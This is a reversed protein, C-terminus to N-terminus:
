EGNGPGGRLLVHCRSHSDTGSLFHLRHQHLPLGPSSLSPRLWLALTPQAEAKRPGLPPPRSPPPRVAPSHPSWTVSWRGRAGQCEVSPEVLQRERARWVLPWAGSAGWRPRPACRHMAPHPSRPSRSCTASKQRLGPGPFIPQAASGSHLDLRLVVLWFPLCGVYDLGVRLVPM